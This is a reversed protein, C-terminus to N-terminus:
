RVTVHFATGDRKGHFIVLPARNRAWRRRVGEPTERCDLLAAALSHRPVRIALSAVQMLFGVAVAVSVAVAVAVTGKSINYQTTHRGRHNISKLNKNHQKISM